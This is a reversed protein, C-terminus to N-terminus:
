PIVTKLRLFAKPSTASIAARALGDPGPAPAPGFPSFGVTFDTTSEPMLTFHISSTLRLPYALELMGAHLRHSVFEADKLRPNLGLAFETGANIGDGDSDDATGTVPSTGPKSFTSQWTAFTMDIEAPEKGILGDLIETATLPAIGTQYTRNFAHIIQNAIVAQANTNPHFADSLDGDPWVNGQGGLTNTGNGINIGHIPRDTPWTSPPLTFM